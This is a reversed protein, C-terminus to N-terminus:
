CLKRALANGATTSEGRRYCFPTGGGVPFLRDYGTPCVYCNGDDGRFAGYKACQASSEGPSSFGIANKPDRYYVAALIAIVIMLGIVIHADIM